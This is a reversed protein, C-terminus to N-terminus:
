PRIGHPHLWGQWYAVVLFIIMAISLAVRWTLARVTRKQDGTDRMLFFLGSGLSIMIAVLFAILFYKIM